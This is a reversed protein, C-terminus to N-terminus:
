EVVKFSHKNDLYEVTKSIGSGSVVKFHLNYYREPELGDTKLKFFNSTSDCSLKSGSGFPILVHDTKADTVSYFSSASPLYNATLYASSTGFSRALYRERGYVRIKSVSGQKYQKRLSTLYVELKGLEDLDAASLSGTSWSSDDWVAELKPYYITHTDSSFFKLVGFNNSNSATEVSKPRKLLFGENSASGSILTNVMQTVDIRADSGTKSFTFSSSYLSASFYTAGWDDTSGSKWELSQTVGTRYRWSVGEEIHPDDTLKGDGETWSQSVTYVELINDNRTLEFSGADYLNLYFKVDTGIEGNAVSKSIQTLPFKIVSRQISGISTSDVQFAKGVEIIEDGGLNYQSSTGNVAAGRILTADKDAKVFYHAM